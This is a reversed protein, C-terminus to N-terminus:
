QHEALADRDTMTPHITLILGTLQNIKIVKMNLENRDLISALVQDMLIRLSSQVSIEALTTQNYNSSIISKKRDFIM